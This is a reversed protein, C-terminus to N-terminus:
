SHSKTSRNPVKRFKAPRAQEGRWDPIEFDIDIGKGSFQRAIFTGLAEGTSAEGEVAHRLIDRIEADLSQGHRKARRKLRALVSNELNRIVMNSM